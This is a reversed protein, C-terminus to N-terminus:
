VFQPRVAQYSRGTNARLLDRDLRAYLTGIQPETGQAIVFAIGTDSQKLVLAVKEPGCPTIAMDCFADFGYQGILRSSGSRNLMVERIEGLNQDIQFEVIRGHNAYNILLYGIAAFLASLGARMGITDSQIISSPVVWLGFAAAFFAAGFLFAALQLLIVGAQVNVTNRLTFGWYTETLVPGCNTQFVDITPISPAQCGSTDTMDKLGKSKVENYPCIPRLLPLM